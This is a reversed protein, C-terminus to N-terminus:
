AMSVNNLVICYYTRVGDVVQPCEMYIAEKADGYSFATSIDVIRASFDLYNVILLQIWFLIDNVDTSYNKSFDFM